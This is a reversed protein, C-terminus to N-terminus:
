NKRLQLTVQVDQTHPDLMEVFLTAEEGAKAFQVLAYNSDFVVKNEKGYGEAEFANLYHNLHSLVDGSSEYSWSTSQWGNAKESFVLKMKSDPYRAITSEEGNADKNNKAFLDSFKFDDAFQIQWFANSDTTGANKESLLLYGHASRENALLSEKDIAKVPIRAVARFRQTEYTFPTEIAETVLSQLQRSQSDIFEESADMLYSLNDDVLKYPVGKSVADYFPDPNELVSLINLNAEEKRHQAAKWLKHFNSNDGAPNVYRRVRMNNGNLRISRVGGPVVSESLVDVLAHTNEALPKQHSTFVDAQVNAILTLAFVGSAVIRTALHRKNSSTCV